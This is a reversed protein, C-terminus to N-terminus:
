SWRAMIYREAMLWDEMERGPAFGREAALYYAATAIMQTLESEPAAPKTTKARKASPTAAPLTGVKKARPKKSSVAPTIEM